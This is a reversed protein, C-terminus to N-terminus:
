YEARVLWHQWFDGHFLDAEFISCGKNEVSIVAKAV